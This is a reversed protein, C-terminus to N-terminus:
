KRSLLFVRRQFLLLLMESYKLLNSWAQIPVYYLSTSEDVSSSFDKNEKSDSDSIVGDSKGFTLPMDSLVAKKLVFFTDNQCM